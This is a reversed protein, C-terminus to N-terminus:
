LYRREVLEMFRLVAENEPDWNFNSLLFGQADNIGNMENLQDLTQNMLGANNSFLERQFFFRDNIGLARKLDTIPPSTFSRKKWSGNQNQAIKENFSSKGTSLREGLVKAEKKAEQASKIIPEGAKEAKEEKPADTPHQVEAPGSETQEIKEESATGTKGPEAATEEQAPENPQAPQTSAEKDEPHDAVSQGSTKTDETDEMGTEAEPEPVAAESNRNKESATEPFPKITPPESTEPKETGSLEELMELEDLVSKIRNRTLKFFAQSLDKKGKVSQILNDVEKLDHSLIELLADKEM